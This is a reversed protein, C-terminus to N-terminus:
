PLVRALGGRPAAGRAPRRDRALWLAGTFAAALAAVGAGLWPTTPEFRVDVQYTGPPLVLARYLLNARLLPTEVGDIRAKWGPYYTDSLVLYGGAGSVRAQFGSPGDAIVQVSSPAQAISAPLPLATPASDSALIVTQLPDFTRRTMVDLSGGTPAVQARPVVFARPLAEENRLLVTSRDSSPVVTYQSRSAAGFLQQITAGTPDVLAGGYVRLEGRELRPRIRLESGDAVAPDFAIRTFSLLRTERGAGEFDLGAVEVRAHQVRTRVTPNDYAWEMVDTGARIPVSAAVMGDSRVIEVDAVVSDQPIEVSGVLALVLRVESVRAAPPIRFGDSTPVVAPLLTLIPNPPFYQVGEYWALQGFQRPELRYRVNWANLLAGGVARARALYDRHWRFELSSYGDADDVGPAQVLLRDPAAQGVAPSRLVRAPGFSPLNRRVDQALATVAPSPALIQDLVARPHIQWGFLLLDLATIGVAAIGLATAPRGRGASLRLLGLSGLVLLVLPSWRRWDALTFSTADSLGALVNTATIPYTDRPLSLYWADAAARVAMPNVIVLARVAELFSLVGVAAALTVWGARRVAARGRATRACARAADLGAAALMALALVVLLVFRGPARLSGMGPLQTLLFHLNVPTYQGMALLLGILAFASWLQVDGRRQRWRTCLAFVALVLPLVGVYLYAEWHTWLGWEQNAADRYFFPFLLQVLSYPTLSYAASDAYRLGEGRPSFQALELLPLVQFAALSVGVLAPGLTLAAGVAVGGRTRLARGGTAVFLWRLAVYLGLALLDMALIQIHLGVSAAAVGLIAGVTWRRRSRGTARVARETCALVLPLWAASRIINEHHLQASFFSGFAVTSGALLAAVGSRGWARALAYGGLGALALHLGRLLVVAQNAPLALLSALVLPNSLGLEGDAFLPYGGFIGPVWAPFVGARLQEWIWRTLPYYFDLTDREYALQGLLWGDATALVALGVLFCPEWPM